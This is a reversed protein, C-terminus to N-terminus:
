WVSEIYIFSNDTQHYSQAILLLAQIITSKGSGNSGALLTLDSFPIEIDDFCKFNQLRLKAIM